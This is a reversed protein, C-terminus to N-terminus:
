PWIADQDGQSHRAAEEVVGGAGASTPRLEAIKSTRSPTSSYRWPAVQVTNVAIPSNKDPGSSIHNMIKPFIELQIQLFLILAMLQRM